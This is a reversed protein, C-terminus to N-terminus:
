SVATMDRRQYRGRRNARVDVAPLPEPAQLQAPETQAKRAAKALTLIKADTASANFEDGKQLRKHAYIMRKRAILQVQSM